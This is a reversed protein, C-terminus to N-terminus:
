KLISEKTSPAFEMGFSSGYCTSPPRPLKPYSVYLKELGQNKLSTYSPFLKGLFELKNRMLFSVERVIHFSGKRHGSTEMKPFTSGQQQGELGHKMSTLWVM